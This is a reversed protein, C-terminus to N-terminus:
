RMEKLYVFLTLCFDKGTFFFGLHREELFPLVVAEHCYLLSRPVDEKFLLSAMEPTGPGM